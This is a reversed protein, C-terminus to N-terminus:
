FKYNWPGHHGYDLHAFTIKEYLFQIMNEYLFCFKQLKKFIKAQSNKNKHQLLFKIFYFFGSFDPNKRIKIKGSNQFIKRKEFAM